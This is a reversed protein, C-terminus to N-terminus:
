KETDSIDVRPRRSGCFAVWRGDQAMRLEELSEVGGLWGKAVARFDFTVTHLGGRDPLPRPLLVERTSLVLPKALQTRQPFATVRLITLPRMAVMTGRSWCGLDALEWAHMGKRVSSTGM